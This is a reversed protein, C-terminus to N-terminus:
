PTTLQPRGGPHWAPREGDALLRVARTVAAAAAEFHAFDVRETEDSPQHYDPHLGYSSLTHAPIGQLAFAINDSREFFKFEPRPDAVLPVGAARLQEGMTSREYGTLWLRGVGGALSDPRGIMEVQLDAVTRELPVVPREIYWLTGLLRQEEGTTLLFIVTRRPPPGSAIARAAELVAVVGSGDDDAGNYISDGNVPAGIGLHDYHAGVIVAEDRLASDAGRVIGIVNVDAIPEGRTASDPAGPRLLRLVRGEPTRELALPVRQYYSGSGGEELGYERMREAIWRAARESGPTATARGEMSDAGLAELM